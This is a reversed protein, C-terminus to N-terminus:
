WCICAGEQCLLGLGGVPGLVPKVICHVVAISREPVLQLVDVRVLYTHVSHLTQM